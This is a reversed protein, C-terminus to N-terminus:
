NRRGVLHRAGALCVIEVNQSQLIPDARPQKLPCVFYNGNVSWENPGRSLIEEVASPAYEDPLAQKPQHVAVARPYGKAFGIRSSHAGNVAIFNGKRWECRDVHTSAARCNDFPVRDTVNGAAVALGSALIRLAQM